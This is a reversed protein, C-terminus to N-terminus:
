DDLEDALHLTGAFFKYAMNLGAVKGTFYRHMDKDAERRTQYAEVAVPKLLAEFAETIKRTQEDTLGLDSLAAHYESVNM